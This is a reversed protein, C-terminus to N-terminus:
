KLHAEDIAWKATRCREAIPHLRTKRALLDTLYLRWGYRRAAYKIKGLKNGARLRFQGVFGPEPATAMSLEYGARTILTGARQEVLAAGGAPYKTKWKFAIGPDPPTYTTDKSYDLMNGDYPVNLFRCIRELEARAGTVLEEFRVEMWQGDQLREYLRAWTEEARIWFQAGAWVNGAWGMQVASMSVDRPDRLIHIYKAEPWIRPLQDFDQHVTAGIVRFSDKKCGQVLFNRMLDPYDLSFDADLQWHNYIRNTRLYEGYQAMDPWGEPPLFDVMFEFEGRFAIQPHHDLMLRLM